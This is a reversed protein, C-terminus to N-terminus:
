PNGCSTITGAPDLSSLLPSIYPIDLAMGRMILLVGILISLTPVVYNLKIRGSNGLLKLSFSMIFMLPWTGLGFGLMLVSSLGVNAVSLSAALAIYVVGCPLLGNLMGIFLYPLKKGSKTAKTLQNKIRNLPTISSILHSYKRQIAPFLVILLVVGGAIISLWRQMGFLEFGVGLLALLAGMIVYTIARGANYFVVSSKLSTSKHIYAAIPGCMAVCHFSGFFGISVGFILTAWM